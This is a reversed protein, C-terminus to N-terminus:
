NQASQTAGAQIPDNQTPQGQKPTSQVPNQTPTDSNQNPQGEDVVSIKVTAALSKQNALSCTGSVTYTGLKVYSHTASDGTATSSGDGFDWTVVHSTSATCTAKFTVIGGPTTTGPTAEFKFSFLDQAIPATVSRDQDPKVFGYKARKCSEALFLALGIAAFTKLKSTNV